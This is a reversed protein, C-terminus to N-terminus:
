AGYTAAGDLIMDMSFTWSDNADFDLALSEVMANGTYAGADLSGGDEGIQFIYVVTATSEFAANLKAADEVSVSGSVSITGTILGALATPEAAGAVNKLMINKNLTLGGSAVMSEIQDAGIKVETIYGAIWTTAM